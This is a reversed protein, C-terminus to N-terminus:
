ECCIYDDLDSDFYLRYFTSVEAIDTGNLPTMGAYVNDARAKDGGYRIVSFETEVLGPNISTVNVPTHILEMRLSHTLAEVAHKSACYMGGGAYPQLGAISSVNIIHGRGRAKMGPLIAQTVYLLGKVNTDLMTDIAEDSVNEVTDM